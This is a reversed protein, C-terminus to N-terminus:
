HRDVARGPGRGHQHRPGLKGKGDTAFPLVRAERGLQCAEADVDLWAVGIVFGSRLGARVHTPQRPSAPFRPRIRMTRLASPPAMTSEVPRAVPRPAYRCSSGAHTSSARFRLASSRASRVMIWGSSHDSSTLYTVEGSAPSTARLAPPPACGQEASPPPEPKSNPPPPM